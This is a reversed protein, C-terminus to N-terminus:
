GDARRPPAPPPLRPRRDDRRLAAVTSPEPVPATATFYTTLMGQATTMGNYTTSPVISLPNNAIKLTNTYLGTAFSYSAPDSALHQVPPDFTATVSSQNAGSLTGNLVGTIDFPTENPSSRRRHRQQRQRGTFKIDFPTNDYTVSQGAALAKAQFVGLALTSPSVFSAGILPTFTIASPDGTVGTTGITGSTEYALLTSTPTSMPDARTVGAAAAVLGLAVVSTRLGTWGRTRRM